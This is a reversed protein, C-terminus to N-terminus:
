LKTLVLVICVVSIIVVSGILLKEYKGTTSVSVCHKTPTCYSLNTM